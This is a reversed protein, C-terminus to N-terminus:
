NQASKPSCTVGARAVSVEPNHTLSRIKYATAQRARVIERIGLDQGEM